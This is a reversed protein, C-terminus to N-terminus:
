SSGKRPRSNKKPCQKPQICPGSTGSRFIYPSRCYCGPVCNMTCMGPDNQLRECNMPCASGCSDWVQNAFRCKKEEQAQREKADVSALVLFLLLIGASLRLMRGQTHDSGIATLKELM